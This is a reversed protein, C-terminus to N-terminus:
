ADDDILDRAESIRGRDRPVPPQASQAETRARPHEHLAGILKDAIRPSTIEGIPIWQFGSVEEWQLTVEAAAPLRFAYRLDFHYHKPERKHRNAPIAHVDIDLPHGSQPMEPMESAEAGLLATAELVIGTEEALERLAARVLSTDAPELHGGPQLWKRFVNHWIRLVRGEDDVVLASCTLHGLYASRDTIPLGADLQDLLPRLHEREDVHREVYRHVVVVIEEREIM